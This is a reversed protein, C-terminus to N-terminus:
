TKKGQALESIKTLASLIEEQAGQLVGVKELIAGFQHMNEARVKELADRKETLDKIETELQQIRYEASALSKRLNIILGEQDEVNTDIDALHMGEPIPVVVSKGCDTCPITLGAGRYDIVLSKGCYPCDFVIDTEKIDAVEETKEAMGIVKGAWVLAM